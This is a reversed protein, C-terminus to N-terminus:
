EFVRKSHIYSVDFGVVVRQVGEYAIWVYAVFSFFAFLQIIPHAIFPAYLDEFFRQYWLRNDDTQKQLILNQILLTLLKLIVVQKLNKIQKNKM